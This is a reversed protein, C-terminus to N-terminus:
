EVIKITIMDAEQNDNTQGFPAFLVTLDANQQGFGQNKKAVVNRGVKFNNGFSISSSQDTNNIKLGGLNIKTPIFYM